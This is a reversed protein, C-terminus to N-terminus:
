AAPALGASGPTEAPQWGGSVKIARALQETERRSLARRVTPGYGGDPDGNLAPVLTRVEDANSAGIMELATPGPYFSESWMGAASLLEHQPCLLSYYIVEDRGHMMRVGPLTTLAKALALVQDRGFLARVIPGDLLVRHQPSVVLLRAPLNPGFADPKIEIPRNRPDRPILKHKTRGVWRVPQAARDATSILDGAVLREVPVSGDPTEILTGEAFCVPNILVSTEGPDLEVTRSTGVGDTYNITYVGGGDVSYNDVGYFTLTGGFDPTHPPPGGGGGNSIDIEFDDNFNRLDFVVDAEQDPELFIKMYDIVTDDEMILTRDSPFDQLEVQFNASSFENVNPDYGISVIIPTSM